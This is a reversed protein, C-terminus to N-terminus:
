QVESINAVTSQRLARLHKCPDSAIRSESGTAVRVSAKFEEL